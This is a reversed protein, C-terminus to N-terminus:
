KEGSNNVAEEKPSYNSPKVYSDQFTSIYTPKLKKNGM